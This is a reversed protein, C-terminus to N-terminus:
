VGLKLQSDSFCGSSKMFTVQKKAKEDNRVRLNLFTYCQTLGNLHDNIKQNILGTQIWLAARVM